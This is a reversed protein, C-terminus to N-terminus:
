GAEAELQRRSAEPCRHRDQIDRLQSLEGGWEQWRWEVFEWTLGAVIGDLFVIPKDDYGFDPCGEQRRTAIVYTEVRVAPQDVTELEVVHLPSPFPDDPHGPKRIPPRRLIDHVERITQGEEVLRIRERMEYAPMGRPKEWQCGALAALAGLLLACAHRAFM